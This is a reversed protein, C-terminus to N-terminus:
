RDHARLERYHRVLQCGEFTQIDSEVSDTGDLAQAKGERYVPHHRDCNGPDHRAPTVLVDIALDKQPASAVISKLDEGALVLLDPVIQCPHNTRLRADPTVWHWIQRNRPVGLTGPQEWAVEREPRVHAQLIEIMQEISSVLHLQVVAVIQRDHHDPAQGM